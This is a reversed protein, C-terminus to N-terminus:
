SYSIRRVRGPTTRFSWTRSGEHAPSVRDVQRLGRKICEWWASASEYGAPYEDFLADVFDGRKAEEVDKLYALAVGVAARRRAVLDEDWGPVEIAELDAVDAGPTADEDLRGRSSYEIGTGLGDGLRDRTQTVARSVFEDIRGDEVSSLAAAADGLTEDRVREVDPDVAGEVSRDAAARRAAEVIRGDGDEVDLESVRDAYEALVAGRSDDVDLHLHLRRRLLWLLYEEVDDFQLLDAEVDLSRALDDSITLEISRM